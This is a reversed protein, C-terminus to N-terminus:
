RRSKSALALNDIEQRLNLLEQSRMKLDNSVVKYEAELRHREPSDGDLVMIQAYLQESRHEFEPIVRGELEELRKQLRALEQDIM